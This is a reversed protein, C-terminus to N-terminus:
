CLGGGSVIGDTGGIGGVGGEILTDGNVVGSSGFEGLLMFLLGAKDFASVYGVLSVLLLTLVSM